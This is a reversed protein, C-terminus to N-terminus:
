HFHLRPTLNWPVHMLLCGLCRIDQIAVEYVLAERIMRTGFEIDLRVRNVAGMRRFM